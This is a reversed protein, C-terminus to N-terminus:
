VVFVEPMALGDLNHPLDGTFHKLPEVELQHWVDKHMYAVSALTCQLVSRRFESPEADGGIIGAFRKWVYLPLEVLYEYEAEALSKYRQGHKLLRDDEMVELLVAEAPRTSLAACVLTARVNACSNKYGNLHTCDVADDDFCLQM